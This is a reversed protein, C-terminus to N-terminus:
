DQKRLKRKRVLKWIAKKADDTLEDVNAMGHQAAAEGSEFLEVPTEYDLIAATVDPDISGTISGLRVAFNENMDHTGAWGACVRGNQQHCLFLEPPQEMTPKDYEPLKGYEKPDWIGSPVNCRYPCSGCPNKAPEKTTM